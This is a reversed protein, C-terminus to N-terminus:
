SKKLSFKLVPELGVERCKRAFLEIQQKLILSKSESIKTLQNNREFWLWLCYKKPKSSLKKVNANNRIIELTNYAQNCVYVLKQTKWFKVAYVTDDKQLDRAEVIHWHGVWIQSFDKDWWKYIGSDVLSKNFDTEGKSIEKYIWETEEIDIADIYDHIQKLYDENFKIRKGWHLVVNEEDIIYEIFSKVSKTYEKQDDTTIKVKIKLIEDFQINHTKVFSIIDEITISDLIGSKDSYYQLQYKQNGGFIFDVWILDHSDTTLTAGHLKSVLISDFRNVQEKDKIEETRPLSFKQNEALSLMIQDLVVHINKVELNEISLLISWWFKWNKWFFEQKEKIISASIYDISEWSESNFLYDKKYSKIEKTKKWSFRKSATQKVDKKNAIRKAMELWFETESFQRVYFHSKGYTLSFVIDDKQCVLLWFYINNKIISMDFYGDFYKAWPINDIEPKESLYFEYNWGWENFSFKQHMAVSESIVKDILQQKHDVPIKFINLKM